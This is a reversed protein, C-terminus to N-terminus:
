PPAAPSSARSSRGCLAMPKPVAVTEEPGLAQPAIAALVRAGIRYDPHDGGQWQPLNLRLVKTPDITVTENRETLLLVSRTISIPLCFLQSIAARDMGM